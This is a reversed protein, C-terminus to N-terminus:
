NESFAENARARQREAKLVEYEEGQPGVHPKPKPRRLFRDLLRMLYTQRSKMLTMGSSHTHAQGTQPTQWTPLPARQKHSSERIVRGTPTKGTIHGLPSGPVPR